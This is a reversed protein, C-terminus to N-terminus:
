DRGNGRESWAPELVSSKESAGSIRFEHMYIKVKRIIKIFIEYADLFSLQAYRRLPSNIFSLLNRLSRKFVILELYRLSARKELLEPSFFALERNSELFLLLTKEMAPSPETVLTMVRVIDYLNEDGTRSKFDSLFNYKIQMTQMRQVDKFVKYAQEKHIRYLLLVDPLNAFESGKVTRVWLDYDEARNYDESYRHELFFSRKGMIAPHVFTCGFLLGTMIEDHTEPVRCIMNQMGFRKIWSGCVDIDPNDEMFRVQKEFREPLSIDDADMRAIYKGKALTIGKNLTNATQLNTENKVYIIRPDDYSLIIEETEDTSADNLIIFEFDTCTQNLISDIAERLYKEGNYVPMVVSIMTM